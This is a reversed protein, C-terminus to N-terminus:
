ELITAVKWPSWLSFVSVGAGTEQVPKRGRTIFQGFLACFFSKLTLLINPSSRKKQYNEEPLDKQQTEQYFRM